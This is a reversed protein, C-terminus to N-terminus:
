EWFAVCRTEISSRIQANAFSADHFATHPCRWTVSHDSDYFKFLLVDDRTMNPFYWWAHGPRYRLITAAIMDDEGPVPATLADGLICLGSAAAWSLYDEAYVTGSLHNHLDGGKPMQRLFMRLAGPDQLAKDFLASVRAERSPAALATDGCALAALGLICALVARKVVGADHCVAPLSPHRVRPENVSEGSRM